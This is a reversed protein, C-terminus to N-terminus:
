FLLITYLAASEVLLRVIRILSLKSGVDVVGIKKSAQHRLFIKLIILGTTMFNQVFALPYASRFLFPAPTPIIIFPHRIWYMIYIYVGADCLM